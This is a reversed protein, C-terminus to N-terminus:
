SGIDDIPKAIEQTSLTPGGSERIEADYETAVARIKADDDPRTEQPLRLLVNAISRRHLIAKLAYKRPFNTDQAAAALPYIVELMSRLVYRAEIVMGREALLVTAQFASM